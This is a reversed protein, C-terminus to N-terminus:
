TLELCRKKKDNKSKKIIFLGATHLGYLWGKKM